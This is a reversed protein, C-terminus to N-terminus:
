NYNKSFYVMRKPVCRPRKLSKYVISVMLPSALFNKVFTTPSILLRQETLLTRFLSFVFHRRTNLSIFCCIVPTAATRKERPVSKASTRM